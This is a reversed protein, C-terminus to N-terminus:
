ECRETVLIGSYGGQAALIAPSANVRPTLTINTPPKPDPRPYTM